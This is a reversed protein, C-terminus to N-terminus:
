HSSNLRTSKRDSQFKVENGNIIDLRMWYDNSKFTIIFSERKENFLTYDKTVIEYDVTYDDCVDKIFDYIHKGFNIIKDGLKIHTLESNVYNEFQKLHKM